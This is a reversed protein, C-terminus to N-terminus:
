KALYFFILSGVILSIPIGIFVGAAIIMIPLDRLWFGIEVYKKQQAETWTTEEVTEISNETDMESNSVSKIEERKEADEQPLNDEPSIDEDPVPEDTSVTSSLELSKSHGISESIGIGTLVLMFLLFFSIFFSLLFKGFM